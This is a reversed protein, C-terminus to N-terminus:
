DIVALKRTTGGADKIEIYGTIAADATAAHTGFRVKGTGKATLRLDVDTDGGQSEIQPASGTVAGSVNLWNARSAVKTARLSETGWHGGLSAIGAETENILRYWGSWVGTMRGRYWISNPISSSHAYPIALQTLQGTGDKTSYEVGMTHWYGTVPPANAATGTYLLTAGFGPTANSADNFDLAGTTADVGFGGILRNHLRTTGSPDITIRNVNNTGLVLNNGTLTGVGLDGGSSILYMKGSRSTGFLTGASSSGYTRLYMSAATNSAVEIHNYSAATAIKSRIATGDGSVDLLAAPSPQNIGVNGDKSIVMRNTNNTWFELDAYTINRIELNSDGNSTFGVYGLANVARDYYELVATADVVSTSDSDSIRIWPLPSEVHLTRQPNNTGIGLNAGKFRAREANFTGFVLDGTNYTGIALNQNISYIQSMDANPNGLTTGTAASGRAAMWLNGGDSGIRAYAFGTTQTTEASFGVSSGTSYMHLHYQPNDTGIGVYGTAAIRMRETENVLFRVHGTGIVDLSEDSSGLQDVM